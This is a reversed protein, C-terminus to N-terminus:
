WGCCTLCISAAASSDCAQLMLKGKWNGQYYKQNYAGTEAYRTQLASIRNYMHKCTLCRQQWARITQHYDIAAVADIRGGADGCRIGHVGEAQQLDQM